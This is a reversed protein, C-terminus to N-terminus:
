GGVLVTVCGSVIPAGCAALDGLRAAPRGGILVSGSGKSIPSPPHVTPPPFACTHLDGLVAAPLGGILVTAVGPGTVVGPHGSQDTVRAAPPM